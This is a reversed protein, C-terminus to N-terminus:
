SGEAANAEVKAKLEALRAAGGVAKKVDTPLREWVAKLPDMTSMQAAATLDAVARALSEPDPATPPPTEDRLPQVTFPKRSAKTATLAMTVPQDIHSMAAIRIGGVAVGGFLVKEDRYLTMSRGIYKNGDEGWVMILVRRMSKGPKYPKGNDGEFHIAVPQEPTTLLAVKTVKITKTQGILDDANLQDSKPAVTSRLDIV